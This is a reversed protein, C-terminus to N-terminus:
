VGFGRYSFVIALGCIKEADDVFAAGKLRKGKIVGCLFEEAFEHLLREFYSVNTKFLSALGKRGIQSM